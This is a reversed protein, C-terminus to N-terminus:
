CTIGMGEQSFIGQGVCVGLYISFRWTDWSPKTPAVKIRGFERSEPVAQVGFPPIDM